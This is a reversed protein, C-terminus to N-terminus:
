SLAGRGRLKDFVNGLRDSLSDFMRVENAACLRPFGISELAVVSFAGTPSVEGVLTM